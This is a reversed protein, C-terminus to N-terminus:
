PTFSLGSECAMVLAVVSAVLGVMVTDGAVAFPTLAVRIATGSRERYVPLHFAGLPEAQPQLTFERGSESLVAYNTLGTPSNTVFASQEFVPLPRMDEAALPPFFKPAKGARIRAQNSQLYYAQRKNVARRESYADYVVLLNTHNPTEFL